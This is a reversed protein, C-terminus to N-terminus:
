CSIFSLVTELLFFVDSGFMRFIGKSTQTSWSLHIGTVVAHSTRMNRIHVTAAFINFLCDRFASLPDYELKPTPRSASLVKGYFSVYNRFIYQYWASIKTRVLCRFLSMLNPVQFSLLMNLDLESVFSVPSNVQYLNSKTPTCYTLQSIPPM